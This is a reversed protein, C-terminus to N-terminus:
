CGAFASEPLHLLAADCVIGRTPGDALDILNQVFRDPDSWSAGQRSQLGWLEIASAVLDLTAWREDTEERVTWVFSAYVSGLGYPDYGFLLPDDPDPYIAAIAVRDVSLDRDPLPLSPDIFRPEDLSLAAVMDAFGENLARVANLDGAPVPSPRGSVGTTLLEFWAHGFEHRVVGANAALPVGDLGDPFLVFTRSGLVYAANETGLFDQPTIPQWAFRVPFIPDVDWGRDVLERRIDALHAYFSWSVLGDADAAVLAGDHEFWPVRLRAGEHYDLAIEEFNALFAGGRFGTAIEGTVHVPDALEPVDRAVLAYTGDAQRDLVTVPLDPVPPACGLVAVLPVLVKM